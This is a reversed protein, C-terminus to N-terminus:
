AAVLAIVGKGDFVIPSGPRDGSLKRLHKILTVETASLNMPNFVDDVLQSLEPSSERIAARVLEASDLELARAFAPVKDIPLKVTGAKILSLVIKREFGVATCLDQDSLGLAAQQAEIQGVLTIPTSSTSSTSTSM